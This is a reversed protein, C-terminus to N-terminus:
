VSLKRKMRVIPEKEETQKTLCQGIPIGYAMLQREGCISDKRVRILKIFLWHNIEM